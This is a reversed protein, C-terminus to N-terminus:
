AAIVRWTDTIPNYAAGDAVEIRDETETLGGWIIWESGSWVSAAAQPSRDAAPSSEGRRPIPTMPM